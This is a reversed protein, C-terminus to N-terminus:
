RPAWSREPRPLNESQRLAMAAITLLVALVTLVLLLRYGRRDAVSYPTAEEAGPYGAWHEEDRREVASEDRPRPAGQQEVGDTM